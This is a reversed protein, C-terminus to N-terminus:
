TGEEYPFLYELGRWVQNRWAIYNHGAPYQEFVVQCRRNALRAQMNRNMELLSEYVGVDLWVKLEQSARCDVLDHIVSGPLFAGSQSLVKGFIHDLRVGTYLAMLGGMSAGLAGYAGNAQDKSLLELEQGALPLVSNVIFDLTADSCAYEIERREVGNTLFAMAIPRIRQQAILNDVQTALRARRLYQAGDYVVVLPYPGAADPRYLYIKRRAGSQLSDADAWHATVQGRPAQAMKRVLPTPAGPPLYFYNNSSDFETPTARSNLPDLQRDGDLLFAYELYSGPSFDLSLAWHQPGVRKLKYDRTEEWENFDGILIPARRGFWHFTVHEGDVSPNTFSLKEVAL